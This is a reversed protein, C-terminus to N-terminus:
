SPPCPAESDSCSQAASMYRFTRKSIGSTRVLRPKGRPQIDDRWVGERIRYKTERMRRVLSSRWTSRESHPVNADGSSAQIASFIRPISEILKDFQTSIVVLSALKSAFLHLNRVRTYKRPHALTSSLTAGLALPYNRPVIKPTM